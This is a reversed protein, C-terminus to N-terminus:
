CMHLVFILASCVLLCRRIGGTIVRRRPCKTARDRAERDWRIAQVEFARQRDEAFTDDNVDGTHWSNCTAGGGGGGGGGCM